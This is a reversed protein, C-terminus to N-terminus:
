LETPSVSCPVVCALFSLCHVALHFTSELFPRLVSLYFTLYPLCCLYVPCTSLVPLCYLYVDCSTLFTSLCTSLVPLCYLNVVPLCYLNVDCTSLVSLCRLHSCPCSLLVDPCREKERGGSVSRDMAWEEQSLHSCHTAAKKKKEVLQKRQHLFSLFFTSHHITPLTFSKKKM